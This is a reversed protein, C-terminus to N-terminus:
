LLAVVAGVAAGLLLGLFFMGWHREERQKLGLRVAAADIAERGAPVAAGAVGLAANRGKFLEKLTPRIQKRWARDSWKAADDTARALRKAADRRAPRSDRWAEAAAKEVDAGRAALLGAVEQGRKTMDQTFKADVLRDILEKISEAVEDATKAPATPM